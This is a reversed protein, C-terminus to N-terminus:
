HILGNCYEIVFSRISKLAIDDIKHSIIFHHTYYYLINEADTSSFEHEDITNLICILLQTNRHSQNVCNVMRLRLEFEDDIPLENNNCMFKNFFVNFINSRMEFCYPNNNPVTGTIEESDSDINLLEKVYSKIKYRFFRISREIAAENNESSLM